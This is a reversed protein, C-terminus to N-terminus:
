QITNTNSVATTQSTDLNLMTTNPIMAASNVDISTHVISNNSTGCGM